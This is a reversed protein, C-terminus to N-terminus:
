EYDDVLEDAIERLQKTTPVEVVEVTYLTLADLTEQAPVPIDYDEELATAKVPVVNYQAGGKKGTKNVLFFGKTLPAVKPDAAYAKLVNFLRAGVDWSKLNVSGNEDCIGVNFCSVAQPKDGIECLPCPKNFSLLCTFPRKSKQGESNMREIWHRRYAAYPKDELFKCAVLKEDPQFAQAWQSTSDMQKQSEGWGGKIPSDAAKLKPPTTPAPAEEEDEDGNTRGEDFGAKFEQEMPTPRRVARKSPTAM